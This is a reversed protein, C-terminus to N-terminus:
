TNNKPYKKNDTRKHQKNNAKNASQSFDTELAMNSFWSSRASQFNWYTFRKEQIKDEQNTIEIKM